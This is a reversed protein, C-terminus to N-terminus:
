IFNTKISVCVPIEHLSNKSIQFIKYTYKQDERTCWWKQPIDNKLAIEFSIITFSLPFNIGLLYNYSKKSYQITIKVSIACDSMMMDTETEYMWIGKQLFKSEKIEFWTETLELKLFINRVPHFKLFPQVSLPARTYLIENLRLQNWLQKSGMKM